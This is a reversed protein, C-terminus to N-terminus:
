PPVLHTSDPKFGTNLAAAAEPSIGHTVRANLHRALFKPFSIWEDGDKIQNTWACITQFRGEYSRIQATSQQLAELAAEKEALNRKASVLAERFVAIVTGAILLRILVLASNWYRNYEHLYQHGVFYNVAIWATSAAVAMSWAARRGGFWAAIAVPILFFQDFVLENSAKYDIFAITGLVIVSAAASKLKV